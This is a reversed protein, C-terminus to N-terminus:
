KQIFSYFNMKSRLEFGLKKYIEIAPDNDARSHLFPTKGKEFISQTIYHTIKAGLGLGRFDPNTCIASVEVYGGVHFREGGMAALKGDIFIGHYNGFEITRKSFPGPNTLTTLEIMEDISKETLLIIEVPIKTTPADSLNQCIMQIANSTQLVEFDEIFTVEQQILLYWNREVPTNLALVKQSDVDWNKLGVFPAIEEDFYAYTGTGLNKEKDVGTLSNYIPNDLISNM